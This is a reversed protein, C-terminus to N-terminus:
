DRCDAPATAHAERTSSAPQGGLWDPNFRGAGDRRVVLRPGELAIADIRLQHTFPQLEGLQVEMADFVLLERRDKDLLAVDRARVVGSLQVMPVPAQEFSLRLDADVVASDLQVPLAAPLYGRYPALDFDVLHISADTRLSDAFPVAEALSDFASGNLRFALRPVVKVQRQAKLNSIFPLSFELDRM